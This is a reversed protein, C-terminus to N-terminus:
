EVQDKPFLHVEVLDREGSNDVGIEDLDLLKLMEIQLDGSLKQQNRGREDFELALTEQGLVNVDIEVILEGKPFLAVEKNSTQEVALREFVCGM